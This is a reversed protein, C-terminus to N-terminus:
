MMVMLNKEETPWWGAPGQFQLAFFQLCFKILVADSRWWFKMLVGLLLHGQLAIFPYSRHEIVTHLVTPVSRPWSGISLAKCVFDQQYGRTAVESNCRAWSQYISRWLSLVGRSTMELKNGAQMHPKQDSRPPVRSYTVPSAGYSLPKQPGGSFCYHDVGSPPHPLAM